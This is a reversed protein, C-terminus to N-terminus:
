VRITILNILDSNSSLFIWSNSYNILTTLKERVWLSLMLCNVTSVIKYTGNAKCVLIVIEFYGIITKIRNINDTERQGM